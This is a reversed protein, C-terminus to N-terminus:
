PLIPVRRRALLRNRVSFGKGAVAVSLQPDDFEMDLEALFATGQPLTIEIALPSPPFAGILMRYARASLRVFPFNSDFLIFESESSLTMGISRLRGSPTVTLTVNDKNLFPNKEVTVGVLGAAHPTETSYHQGRLLLVSETGGGTLSIRGLPGPSELELTDAATGEHVTQTVTLPQPDVSSYPTYYILGTAFAVSATLFLLATFLSRIDKTFFRPGTFLLGLRITFLLFPLCAVAVLVNGWFRDLILLRCFPLAPLQFVEVLGRFLWYPSPLFLLVKGIRTPVQSAAFLFLFAWLFYYSFSLNLACSAVIDLLLFLLASASWFSGNRPFPFRRLLPYAANFLFFALFMKLLFFSFPVHEWLTPFSRLALLGEIALGAPALILFTIGAIPVIAWANRVLTRAYRRIRRRFALGLALTFLLSGLLAALYTREDLIFSRGGVRFYLYHRDWERPIGDGSELLRRFFGRFTEAWQSPASDPAGGYEGELSLSPYGAKLYPEIITREGRLGMRFVQNENERVAYAIGAEQLASLCRDILWYPSVILNAGTRVILRSPVERLDLYVVAVRHDPQFDRLFLASGMPYAGSGGTEAGLFLVTLSLAPPSEAARELASLALALNVAGDAGEADGERGDLPVALIITDESRGKVDVRLCSSFSHGFDAEQFDFGQAPLGMSAIRRGLYELAGREERSGELRPHFAALASLDATFGPATGAAAGSATEAAPNSPPPAQAAAPIACALFALLLLLM